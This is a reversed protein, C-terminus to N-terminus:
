FLSLVQAVQRPAAIVKKQPKPNLIEFMQRKAVMRYIGPLEDFGGEQLRVLIKWKGGGISRFIEGNQGNTFTIPESLKIITGVEIKQEAPKKANDMCRQRWNGAWEFSNSGPQYMEGLPSLCKILAAPAESENPGMDESILKTGFNCRDKRDHATLIVLGFTKGSVDIGSYTKREIGTYKLAAYITTGRVAIYVPEMSNRRAFERVWTERTGHYAEFDWGM